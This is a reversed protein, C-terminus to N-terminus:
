GGISFDRTNLPCLGSKSRFSGLNQTSHTTICHFSGYMKWMSLAIHELFLARTKFPFLRLVISFAMRKLFYLWINLLFLGSKSHFSGRNQIFLATICYFSGHMEMLLSCRWHFSGQNISLAMTKLPFLRLVISLAMYKWSCLQINFSFLGSKSHFSAQSQTSLATICHFSGYTEFISGYIWYTEYTRQLSGQIQAPFAALIVSLSINRSNSSSLGSKSHGSKSYFSRVWLPFM